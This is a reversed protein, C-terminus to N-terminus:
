KPGGRNIASTGFRNAIKDVAQDIRHQKERSPDAFLSGQVGAQGTFQSLTVGLLRLPHYQTEAWKNLLGKAQRWLLETVDTPEDTTASRTLTTFDGYRIKLTITRAKFGSRRMRMAIQQTQDLLVGALADLDDIDTRFTQEQGISKAETDPIVPRDDIGASLRQFHEGGEGLRARIMDPSAHRLQGITRINLRAFQKEAAPGVGWLKRIGLPDLVDHVNEPTIITLGDPKELDSALKALFKNPAVGVSVTLGTQSKIRTKIDGAVKAAPGLLRECGSVDLFAEDVSLREILPTFQGMVEFIQESVEGYRRGRPQIVIANPCIRLARAMPMASHCGFARAEYSATAVVGRGTPDGGVLLPKGRLAPNDHKEVAAFFEDMDAHIIWRQM